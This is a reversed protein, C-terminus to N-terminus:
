WQMPAFPAPGPWNNGAAGFPMVRNMAGMAPGVSADLNRVSHQILTVTMAINGTSAEIAAMHQNMATLNTQYSDMNAGMNRMTGAIESIQATMLTVHASMSKTQEAMILTQEAMTLTQQAMTRADSTLLYILFFGYTALLIFAGLGAYVLMRLSQLAHIAKELYAVYPPPHAPPHPDPFVHKPYDHVLEIGSPHESKEM